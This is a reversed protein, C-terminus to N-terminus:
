PFNEESLKTIFEFYIEAYRYQSAGIGISHNPQSQRHGLEAFPFMNWGSKAAVGNQSVPGATKQAEVFSADAYACLVVIERNALALFGLM